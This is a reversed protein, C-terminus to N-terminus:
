AGGSIVKTIRARYIDKRKIGYKRVLFFSMALLIIGVVVSFIEKHEYIGLVPAVAQGTLIGILFLVSPLLYVVLIAKLFSMSDIEIIVECGIRVGDRGTAKILMEGGSGVSCARCARCASHRKIKVVVESGELSDVIGTEKM